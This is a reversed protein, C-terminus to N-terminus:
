GQPKAPPPGDAAVPMAASQKYNFLDVLYRGAELFKAPNYAKDDIRVEYHLHRATSRGTSGIVGIPQRFDVEDMVEVSVSKMHGYRTTVGMGHDIEVMNGYPGNPGAYIVRGPATALIESGPAAGIDLGGHFAWRKTFPDKRKGYNSTIHFHDLPSALPMASALKQLATLRRLQLSMPDVQSSATLGNISDIGQVPGGVGTGDSVAREVLTELDIGTSLFLEQLSEVNSSVWDKFWLQAVARNQDASEVQSELQAVRWRLAQESRRVADRQRTIDNIRMDLDRVRQALAYRESLASKLRGNTLELGAEIDGLLRRAQDRQVTVAALQRERSDLQGELSLQIRELERVADENAVTDRELAEIQAALASAAAEAEELSQEYAQELEGITDAHENLLTHSGFYSVTAVTLWASVVFLGSALVLQVPRSLVLVPTSDHAEPRHDVGDIGDDNM